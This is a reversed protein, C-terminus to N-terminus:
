PPAPRDPLFDVVLTRSPIGPFQSGFHTGPRIAERREGLEFALQPHNALVELSVEVFAPAAVPLGVRQALRCALMENALVRAHQPNNQFKVVYSAGDECRVLWPQSAGRMRRIFELAYVHPTAACRDPEPPPFNHRSGKADGSFRTSETFSMDGTRLAKARM